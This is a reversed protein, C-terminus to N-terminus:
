AVMKRCEQSCNRCADACDQCHKHDFQACIEACTDCVDACLRCITEVAPGGRAMAGIALHCLAACDIDTRICTAMKKPDPEDLCAGACHDCALACSYCADICSRYKEHSM